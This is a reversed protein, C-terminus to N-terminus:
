PQGPRLEVFLGEADAVVVDGDRLKGTAWRKRGAVRELKAEVILEVGLRAVQRYNVHLYATRAVSRGGSNVVRGFLDDFMLPLTGGHAAGNGGLHYPRFTIRGVISTDTTEDIIVPVLMPNGRGPLDSRMGAPSHFPPVAFSAFQDSLEELQEALAEVQDDPTGAHVFTDQLSRMAELLRGYHPGGIGPQVHRVSWVDPQQTSDDSM